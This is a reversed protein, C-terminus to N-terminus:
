KFRSLGEKIRYLYKNRYYIDKIGRLCVDQDTEEGNDFSATLTNLESSLANEIEAIQIRIDSLKGQDADFDLEMLAENVEMMEMLFSQPLSYNEGEVLQGKLELIYHVRKQEDKLVQFAKNNLTSLALIEDQKEQSENIYFDPHYKKSLAYFRQKIVDQSPNFSIPIEYFDFYNMM